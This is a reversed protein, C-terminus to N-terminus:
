SANAEKLTLRNSGVAKKVCAQLDLHGESRVWVTLRMMRKM